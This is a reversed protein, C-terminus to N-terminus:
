ICLYFPPSWCGGSNHKGRMHVQSRNFEPAWAIHTQNICILKKLLCFILKETFKSNRRNFKNTTFGSIYIKNQFHVGFTCKQFLNKAWANNHKKWVGRGRTWEKGGQVYIISNISIQFRSWLIKPFPM